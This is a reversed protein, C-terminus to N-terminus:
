QYHMSQTILVRRSAEFGEGFIDKADQRLKAAVLSKDYDDFVQMAALSYRVVVGSNDSIRLIEASQFGPFQLVEEVHHSSLWKNYKDAIGADKFKVSVEYVVGNGSPCCSFRRAIRQLM